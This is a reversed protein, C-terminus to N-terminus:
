RPWAMGEGAHEALLTDSDPRSTSSSSSIVVSVASFHGGLDRRPVQDHDRRPRSETQDHDRRHEDDVQGLDRRPSYSTIVDLDLIYLNGRGRKKKIFLGAERLERLQTWIVDFSLGSDEHIRRVSPYSRGTNNDAHRALSFMVGNESSTFAPNDVVAEMYDVGM